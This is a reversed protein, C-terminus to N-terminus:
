FCPSYDQIWTQTHSHTHSVSLSHTHTEQNTYRCRQETEPFFCLSFVPIVKTRTFRTQKKHTHTKTRARKQHESKQPRDHIEHSTDSACDVVVAGAVSVVVVLLVVPLDAKASTGGSHFIGVCGCLCCPLSVRYTRTRHVPLCFVPYLILTRKANRQQRPPTVIKAIFLSCHFLLVCGITKTLIDRRQNTSFNVNQCADM